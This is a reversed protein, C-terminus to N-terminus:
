APELSAFRISTLFILNRKLLQKGFLFIRFFVTPIQIGIVMQIGFKKFNMNRINQYEFPWDIHKTRPVLGVMQVDSWYTCLFILNLGNTQYESPGATRYELPMQDHVM